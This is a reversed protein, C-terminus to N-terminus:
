SIGESKLKAHAVELRKHIPTLQAITAQDAEEAVKALRSQVEKVVEGADKFKSESFLGGAKAMLGNIAEIEKRQEATPAAVLRFVVLAVVCLSAVLWGPRFVM